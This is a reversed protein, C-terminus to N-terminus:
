FSLLGRGAGIDLFTRGAITGHGLLDELSETAIREREPDLYGEIYRQWNRGFEFAGAPRVPTVAETNADAGGRRDTM